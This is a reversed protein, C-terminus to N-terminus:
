GHSEKTGQAAAAPPFPLLGGTVKAVGGLGLAVRIGLPFRAQCVLDAPLPRLIALHQAPVSGANSRTFAKGVKEHFVPRTLFTLYREAARM